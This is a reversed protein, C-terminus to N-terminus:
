FDASVTGLRFLTTGVGFSVSLSGGANSTSSYVGTLLLTEWAALSAPYTKFLSRGFGWSKSTNGRSSRSTM